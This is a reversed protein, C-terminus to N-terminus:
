QGTGIALRMIDHKTVAYVGSEAVAIRRVNLDPLGKNVRQWSGGGNRSVAVGRATTAAYVIGDSTVALANVTGPVSFLTSLGKGSPSWTAGDDSTLVGDAGTGAYIRGSRPDQALCSVWPTAPGPTVATWRLGLDRSVFLGQGTLGLLFVSPTGSEALVGAVEIRPVTGDDQNSPALGTNRAVWTAGADRSIAFGDDTAMCVTGPQEAVVIAGVNMGPIGSKVTKWHAGTDTSRLITGCTTGALVTTGDRLVTVCMTAQSPSSRKWTAGTDESGYVGDDTAVFMRKPECPSSAAGELTLNHIGANSERWSTGDPSTLIGRSTAAVIGDGVRALQYVQGGDVLRHVISWKTGDRSYWISGSRTGVALCEEGGAVFCVSTCDSPLADILSRTWTAGADESVAVGNGSVAVVIHDTQGPDIDVGTVVTQSAFSLSITSWTTGGDRSRYLGGEQTGAYVVSGDRSVTACAVHLGLVARGRSSWSRGGDRSVFLGADVTGVVLLSAPDGAAALCSLARGRLARSSRGWTRGGDESRFYGEGYVARGIYVGNSGAMAVVGVVYRGTSTEGTRVWRRGGDASLYLVDEKTAAYLTSTAPLSAVATVHGGDLGDDSRIWATGAPIDPSNTWVQRTVVDRGFWAFWFVGLVFMVLVAIIVWRVYRVLQM